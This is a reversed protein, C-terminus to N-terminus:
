LIEYEKNTNIFHYSLPIQQEYNKVVYIPTNSFKEGNDLEIDGVYISDYKESWKGDYDTIRISLNEYLNNEKNILERKIKSEDIAEYINNLVVKSIGSFLAFRVIGGKTNKNEEIFQKIANKYNTFYYYSGFLLNNDPKSMGFVYTFHLKPINKGVYVASPIDYIKECNDKLITFDMNKNLFDSILPNIEINCVHKTNIIEDVLVPWISSNKYITNINLKCNTFDFFLYINNKYYYFGKYEYKDDLDISSFTSHILYQTKQLNQIKSLLSSGILKLLPFSLMNNILDKQLLFDLFPYLHENNIRYSCIYFNVIDNLNLSEDFTNLKDLGKYYYFKPGLIIESQTLCNENILFM